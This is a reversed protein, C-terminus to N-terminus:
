KCMQLGRTQNFEDCFVGAWNCEHEGTLWRTTPVGRYEHPFVSILQQWLCLNDESGVPPNCSLWPRDRITSFYFLVHLYRQILLPDDATLQRPDELIIWDMARSHATSPDNLKETGVLLELQAQIGIQERYQTPSETPANDSGNGLISLGFVLGAGLVLLVVCGLLGYLRFRRNKYIPPKADPDFEVAAPIHNEDDEDRVAVAVALRDAEEDFYGADGGADRRRGHKDLTRELASVLNNGSVDLKGTNLASALAEPNVGNFKNADVPPAQEPPADDEAPNVDEPRQVPVDQERALPTSGTKQAIREELRRLDDHTAPIPAPGSSNRINHKTVVDQELQNLQNGSTGTTTVAGSKAIVAEEMDQLQDRAGPTTATSGTPRARAKSAIDAELQNLDTPLSQKNSTNSVRPRALAKAAADQEMRSLESRGAVARSKAEADSSRVKAAADREMSALETQGASVTYAGPATAPTSKARTKVAADTEMRGLEQRGSSGVKAPAKKTVTTSADPRRGRNKAAEDDAAGNYNKRNQAIRNDLRAAQAQASRQSGTSTTALRKAREKAEKDPDM